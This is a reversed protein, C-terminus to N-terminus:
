TGRMGAAVYEAFLKEVAEVVARASEYAKAAYPQTYLETPPLGLEEDGYMSPERERGLWRSTAALEPILSRFWPPFREAFRVLVPGVDHWKPPEVGYLRLASKLALEVAEQSQRICYAYAGEGLALEATRIRRRAEELYGRAMEVNNM